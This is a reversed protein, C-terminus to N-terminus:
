QIERPIDSWSGARVCSPPGCFQDTQLGQYYVDRHRIRFWIM